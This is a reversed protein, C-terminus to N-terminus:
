YTITVVVTDAYTGPAAAQPPIRGYVNHRKQTGDGTDAVTDASATGWNDMHSPDSYLSYTVTNAGSRLLRNDPDHSGGGDISVSYSTGPTCTIGLNTDADINSGIIGATGFNLDATELLCNAAVSAYLSFTATADGGGLPTSCDLDGEAYTFVVESTSFDSQYDGVAATQQGRPVVGYLHTTLLASTGSVPVSIQNPEGLGSVSTSGWPTVTGGGTTSLVFGLSNGASTAERIGSDTGGSGAGINGCMTITTTGETIGDCNIAVDTTATGATNGITDVAGFVLDGVHVTCVAAHAVSMSLLLLISAILIRLV